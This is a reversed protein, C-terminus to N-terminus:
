NHKDAVNCNHSSNNQESTLLRFCEIRLTAPVLRLAGGLNKDQPPTNKLYNKITCTSVDPIGRM